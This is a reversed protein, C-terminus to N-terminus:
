HERCTLSSVGSVPKQGNCLPLITNVRALIQRRWVIFRHCSLFNVAAACRYVGAAAFKLFNCLVQRISPSIQTRIHTHVTYFLQPVSCIM